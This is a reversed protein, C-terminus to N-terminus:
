PVDTNRGAGAKWEKESSCGRSPEGTPESQAWLPLASTSACLASPSPPLPIQLQSQAYSWAEPLSHSGQFTAVTKMANNM